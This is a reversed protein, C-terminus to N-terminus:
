ADPEVKVVEEEENGEVDIDDLEDSSEHVYKDAKSARALNLDYRHQM